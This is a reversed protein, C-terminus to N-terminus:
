IDSMLSAKKSFESKNGEPCKDSDCNNLANLSKIKHVAINGIVLVIRPIYQISAYEKFSHIKHTKKQARNTGLVTSFVPM